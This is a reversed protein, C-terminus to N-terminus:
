IKFEWPKRIPTQALTHTAATRPHYRSSQGLRQARSLGLVLKALREATSVLAAYRKLEDGEFPNELSTKALQENVLELEHVAGCYATLLPLSGGDWWDPTKSLVTARWIAKQRAPLTEPPEPRQPLVPTTATLAEASRRGRQKM